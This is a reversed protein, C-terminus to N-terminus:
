MWGGCASPTHGARKIERLLKKQWVGKEKFYALEKLRAEEVLDDRLVQGTTSDRYKGSYRKDHEIITALMHDEDEALHLGVADSKIM